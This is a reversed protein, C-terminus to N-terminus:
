FRIYTYDDMERGAGLWLPTAANVKGCHAPSLSLKDLPVVSPYVTM